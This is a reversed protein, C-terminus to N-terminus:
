RPGIARKLRPMAVIMRSVVIEVSTTSPSHYRGGSSAWSTVPEQAPRTPGQAAVQPLDCRHAGSQRDLGGRMSAARDGWPCAEPYERCPRRLAVPWRRPAGSARRTVLNTHWRRGVTATRTLIAAADESILAAVLPREADGARGRELTLDLRSAPVPYPGIPALRMCVGVASWSRNAARQHWGRSTFTRARRANAALWGSRTM